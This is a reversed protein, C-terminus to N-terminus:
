FHGLDSKPFNLVKEVIEMAHCINLRYYFIANKQSIPKAATGGDAVAVLTGIEGRQITQNIAVADAALRQWFLFSKSGECM